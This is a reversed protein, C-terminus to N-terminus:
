ETYSCYVWANEIVSRPMGHGDDLIELYDGQDPDHKFSLWVNNAFADYANKVLEIVAVVDSTVLDSGLAEFVRPHVQIPIHDFQNEIRRQDM